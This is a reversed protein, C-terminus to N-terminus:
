YLSTVGTSWKTAANAFFGLNDYSHNSHNHDQSAGGLALAICAVLRGCLARM